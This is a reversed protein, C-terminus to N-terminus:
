WRSAACRGKWGGAGERGLRCRSRRADEFRGKRGCSVSPEESCRARWNVDCLAHSLWCALLVAALVMEVEVVVTKRAGGNGRAGGGGGAGARGNSEERGAGCGWAYACRRGLREKGLRKTSSRTIRGCQRDGAVQRRHQKRSPLDVMNGTGGYGYRYRYGCGYGSERSGEQGERKEAGV